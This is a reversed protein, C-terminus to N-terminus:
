EEANGNEFEGIQRRSKLDKCELNWDKATSNGEARQVGQQLAQMVNGRSVGGGLDSQPLLKGASQKIVVPLMECIQYRQVYYLINRRSLPVTIVNRGYLSVYTLVTAM